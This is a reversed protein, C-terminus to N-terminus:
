AGKSYALTVRTYTGQDVYMKRKGTGNLGFSYVFGGLDTVFIQQNRSDLKLGIAEHLGRGLVQYPPPTMVTSVLLENLSRLLDISCCNLSNGWPVDGRNTWYLNRDLHDIPEPLQDIVCEIDQRTSATSDNPIDIGARFIRGKGGRNPGTGNATARIFRGCHLPNKPDQTTGFDLIFLTPSTAEQLPM